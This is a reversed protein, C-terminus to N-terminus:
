PEETATEMRKSLRDNIDVPGFGTVDLGNELLRRVNNRGLFGSEGTVLVRM